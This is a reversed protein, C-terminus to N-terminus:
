EINQANRFESHCNTWWDFVLFESKVTPVVPQLLISSFFIRSFHWQAFTDFSFQDDAKECRFICWFFCLSFTIKLYPAPTWNTVLIDCFGLNMGAPISSSTIDTSKAIEMLMRMHRFIQSKAHKPYRRIRSHNHGSEAFCCWFSSPFNSFLLQAPCWMSHPMSHCQMRHLMTTLHQEIAQSDGVFM